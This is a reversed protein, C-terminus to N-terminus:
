RKPPKVFYSFSIMFFQKLANMRIDEVYNEGVNRSVSVNQNLLDFGQIKILGQRGRFISKSISVCLMAVSQNFGDSLGTKIIYNLNAGLRFSFPLNVNGNFSLPYNFYNTNNAKNVLYRTTNYAAGATAFLDFLEKYSYSVSIGQIVNTSNVRGKVGNIFNIDRRFNAATNMNVSTGQKFYIANTMYLGMFFAGDLNLPQSVQRGLSDLWNANIIKDVIFGGSMNINISRMTIRNLANYGFNVEHMFASKLNPNGIQVYLPNTNDPVPQLQAIDPLITSGSYSFRLNKNNRFVYNLSASPAFNLTRQKLAGPRIVDFNELESLQANIGVSYDYTGKKAHFNVTISQLCAVNRFSNSLSDNVVDYVGKLANYDFTHKNAFTNSRNYDYSLEFFSNGSVPETYALTLAIQGTSTSFDNRQNITDNYNGGNVQIFSSNSRNFGEQDSKNYNITFHTSLTRGTKKFKTGGFIGLSWNPAASKNDNNSSGRNILQRKEGLSEYFNNSHNTIGSYGFKSYIALVHMTDPKYELRGTLNHNAAHNDASAEQNYYYTTDPLINQRSSIREVETYNNNGTYSGAIKLTSNLDRSYNVAAITSRTIGMSGLVAEQNEGNIFGPNNVNDISSIFSLQEGDSFRTMNGGATFRGGTGYGTTMKGSFSGKRTKRITINIVKERKHDDLGTFEAQDSKKDILQVKEIMEATLNRIAIKPDDGFFPRGDVLIRKVEGGNVIITGNPLVQVGPLKKLLEAMGANEWTKYFDASFELTDKKIVMPSRVQVIEVTKLNVGTGQMPISGLDLITDNLTLDVANFLSQYGIFTVYLRYEGRPLDGLRFVGNIDTFTFAIRISDKARLLAVTADALPQQNDRDVIRGKVRVLPAQSWAHLACLTVIIVILLAKSM